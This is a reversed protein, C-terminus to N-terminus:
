LQKLVNKLDGALDIELTYVQGSHPLKFDVRYAHLFLRKLGTRRSFNRNEAFNGYKSDGAIPLSLAALQTRIQHMRGTLLRVSLLSQESFQQLPTFVSESRKGEGSATVQMNQLGSKSRSLYNEVSREGGHWKGLVLTQYCKNIEGQKFLEHLDLLTIRNKALLLLGSTEKDIRHALELFTLEPRLQRFTEIVGHENDTGGHVAIGSPKNIVIVDDDELVISQMMSDLLHQGAKKPEVTEPAQRIPAVRIVEGIALKKVPKIRKKDVRIEGKRLLKYIATKPLFKYEKMLFNDIRQGANEPTVSIFRVQNHNVDSM